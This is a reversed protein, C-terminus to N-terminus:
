DLYRVSVSGNGSTATITRNSAPDSVVLNERSGQDSEATVRYREHGRPVAVAVSGNDSRASVAVAPVALEIRVSGNDSAADVRGDGLRRADISGNSARLHLPGAVDDLELRGNDSELRVASRMGSVAIRGSDTRLDLLLRRPVEIHLTVGCWPTGMPTRCHVGIELQDGVVERTFVTPRLGDSVRATIAIDSRDAGRVDVWGAESRVVLSRLSGGPITARETHEEHALLGITQHTGFALSAVALVSGLALWVGRPRISAPRSDPIM